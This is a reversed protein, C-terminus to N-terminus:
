SRGISAAMWCRSPVPPNYEAEETAQVADLLQLFGGKRLASVDVFMYTDNAPPLYTILQTTPASSGRRSRSFQWGGVAILVVLAAVLGLLLYQKM